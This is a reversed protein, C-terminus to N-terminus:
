RHAAAAPQQELYWDVTKRLGEAFSVSPKYGLAGAAASIDALSHKVDGARDEAYRIPGSYGTIKRLEAAAQNLTIRQGTAVNFVGGSVKDAPAAAAILNGNVVNTIYTFDRSQEGDGYITPEEGALMMMTFKALVGSYP